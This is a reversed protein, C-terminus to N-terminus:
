RRNSSHMKSVTLYWEMRDWKSIRVDLKNGSSDYAAVFGNDTKERAQPPDWTKPYSFTIEGKKRIAGSQIYFTEEFNYVKGVTLKEPRIRCKANFYKITKLTRWGYILERLRRDEDLTTYYDLNNQLTRLNKLM